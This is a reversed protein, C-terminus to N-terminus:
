TQISIENRRFVAIDRVRNDDVFTDSIIGKFFILGDTFWTITYRYDRVQSTSRSYRNFFFFSHYKFKYEETRCLCSIQSVNTRSGYALQKIRLSIRSLIFTDILHL